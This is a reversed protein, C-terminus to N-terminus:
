DRLAMHSRAVSLDSTMADRLLGIDSGCTVFRYGRRLLEPMPCGATPIGGLAKGSTLVAHEIRSVADIFDASSTDSSGLSSMLDSPGIIVADIGEVQAIEAICGVADGHEVMAVILLEAAGHHRAYEPANLGYSSARIVRSAVGRRGLPPYRCAAVADRAAEASRIDPLLVGEFGLDLAHRIHTDHRDPVRFLITADTTQGAWVCARNEGDYDRDTNAM